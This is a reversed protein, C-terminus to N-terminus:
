SKGAASAPAFLAARRLLDENPCDVPAVGRECQQRAACFTCRRMACALQTMGVADEAREPTHGRRALERFLPLPAGSSWAKRFAGVTGALMVAGIALWAMGILVGVTDM